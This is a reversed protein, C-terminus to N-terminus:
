RSARWIPAVPLASMMDGCDYQPETSLFGPEGPSSFEVPSYNGESTDGSPTTVSEIGGFFLGLRQSVFQSGETVRPGTESQWQYAFETVQLEEGDIVVTAGTLSDYGTYDRQFNGSPSETLTSFVMTDRGTEFLESMSAPDDEPELLTAQSGSRLNYARLWRFEADTYNLYFAGQQDLTVGWRSGEPDADCRWHHAVLCSRSQVTLFATCGEPVQFLRAVDQAAVPTAHGTFVLAATLIQYCIPRM